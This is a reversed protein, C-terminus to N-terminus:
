LLLVVFFADTSLVPTPNERLVVFYDTLEFVLVKYGLDKGCIILRNM